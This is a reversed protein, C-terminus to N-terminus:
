ISLALPFPHERALSLLLFACGIEGFFMINTLFQVSPFKLCVGVWFDRSVPGYSPWRTPYMLENLIFVNLSIGGMQYTEMLGEIGTLESKVVTGNIGVM